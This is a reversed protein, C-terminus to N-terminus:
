AVRGSTTELAAVFRAAVVDDVAIAEQRLFEANWEARRRDDLRELSAVQKGAEVWTAYCSAAAVEATAVAQRAKALLAAMREEKARNARFIAPDLAGSTWPVAHMEARRAEYAARAAQVERNAAALRQRAMDEEARRARLISNLAFRYRKV